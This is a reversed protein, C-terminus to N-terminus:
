GRDRFCYLQFWRRGGPAAEAVESPRATAITSVCMATGAAAAARGMGAEGDPHALSQFAVPAVLVPMSLETGLVSTATTSASVDVLVRYRLRQREFAEVNERLTREDGAGGAFDGLPRSSRSPPSGSTTPSTSSRPSM